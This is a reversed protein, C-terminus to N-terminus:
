GRGRGRGDHREKERQEYLKNLKIRQDPTLVQRMHLLMLTRSKNLAARIMEVKDIQKTVQKEDAGFQILRSLEAEERDLDERGQRLGPMNAQFLADIRTSQDATLSLEKQFQADHWWPFGFSQAHAPGAVALLFVTVPVLRWLRRRIM